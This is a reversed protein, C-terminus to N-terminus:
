EGTGPLLGLAQRAQQLVRGNTPEELVRTLMSRLLCVRNRENGLEHLIDALEKMFDARVSRQREEIQHEIEDYLKNM